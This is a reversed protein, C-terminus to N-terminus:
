SPVGLQPIVIGNKLIERVFLNSENFEDITFTHAEINYSVAFKADRIKENDYYPNGSFNPSVLAIDIDSFENNLSKSYSGFLIAKQIEIHSESLKLLFRNIIERIETPVEAM